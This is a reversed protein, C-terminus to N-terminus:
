QINVIAIFLRLAFYSLCFLSHIYAAVPHACRIDYICVVPWSSTTSLVRLEVRDMGDVEKSGRSLRWFRTLRRRRRLLIRM